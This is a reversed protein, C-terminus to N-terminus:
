QSEYNNFEEFDGTGFSPPDLPRQSQDKRRPVGVYQRPEQSRIPVGLTPREGVSVAIYQPTHARTGM